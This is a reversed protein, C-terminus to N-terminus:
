WADPFRARLGANSHRGTRRHDPSRSASDIGHTRRRRGHCQLGERLSIRRPPLDDRHDADPPRQRRSRFRGRVARLQRGLVGPGRTRGPGAVGVPLRLRPHPVHAASRLHARRVRHHGWVHRRRPHIFPDPCRGIRRLHRRRLCRDLEGLEAGPVLADLEVAEGLTTCETVIDCTVTISALPISALPISALPSGIIDISALPISALPTGALETVNLDISALPISALPISALPISALPTDAITSGGTELAVALDLLSESGDIGIASCWETGTPDSGLFDCFAAGGLDISALPISALPTGQLDISALPISALPVNAIDISALPISALPSEALTRGPAASELAAIVETIGDSDEDLGLTACSVTPDASTLYECFTQDGIDISALPISALPISALPISALPTGLLDISALPTSGTTISALPISALPAGAIDISALPISALPISALPISALPISALPTSALDISALPISALPISALPAGQVELDLLTTTNPDCDFGGLDPTACLDQTTDVEAITASGLAISPLTISALPSGQITIDALDVSALTAADLDALTVAQLPTNAYNTGELLASWGGISALPISALPISALPSGEITISALPISALPISALPSASLDISALPISALPISALPSAEVVDGSGTIKEIPIDILPVEVVGPETSNTDVTQSVNTLTPPESAIEVAGIDCANGLPRLAGRQDVPECTSQSIEWSVISQDAWATGGGGTFGFFGTDGVEAAIDVTTSLEPSGPKVSDTALYVDLQGTGAQYDIWAFKITGDDFPTAIPKTVISIIAQGDSVGGVDVGIHNGDPDTGNFYTDFEVAVSPNGSATGIGLRGGPEGLFGQTPVVAFTIGDGSAELGLPEVPDLVFSFSTSFSKTLDFRTGEGRDAFFSGAEFVEDTLVGPANPSGSSQAAVDGNSFVADLEAVVSGPDAADIAPSGALLAHTATPGGNDQLPGLLPDLPSGVDGAIDTSTPTCGGLLRFFNYGLSINNSCDAQAGASNFALLSNALTMSGSSNYVAGGSGSDAHNDVITVQNLDVAASDQIAFGGGNGTTAENGSFTSNSVTTPGAALLGAGSLDGSDGATSNNSFTSGSIDATGFVSVGGGFRAGNGDITTSRLALDGLNHIAGGTGGPASNNTFASDLITMTGSNYVAGASSAVNSDFTAMSLDALPTETSIAGGTTAASNGTFTSDASVLATASEGSFIAGGYDAVNGVFVNATDTLELASTIAGGQSGATNTDFRSDSIALATAGANAAIAGGSGLTAANTAFLSTDVIVDGTGQGYVAGGTVASNDDFVACGITIADGSYHAIAGGANTGASNNSFRTQHIEVVGSGSWIAGGFDLAAGDAFTTLAGFTAPGTPTVCTPDPAEITLTGDNAIAAGSAASNGGFSSSTVVVTGGENSIAGGQYVASNTSFTTGDVQLVDGEGVYVAGGDGTATNSDFTVGNLIGLANNGAMLLGAGNTASGGAITLNELTFTGTGAQIVPVGSDNSGSITVAGDGRLTQDDGIVIGAEFFTGAPLVVEGGPGVADLQEQITPVEAGDAEFAGIDCAAGQPRVVGRQDLGSCADAGDIAPSGGLLAFTDSLGGNDALTGLVPDIPSGPTGFQDGTTATISCETQEIQGILNYGDSAFGGSCDVAGATSTNEAVLSRSVSFFGNGSYLGGGTDGDNGTITSFTVTVGGGDSGIGGGAEALNGTVTSNAVLVTTEFGTSAIGGGLSGSADNAAILSSQVDVFGETAWIGAGNGGALNSEIRSDTITMQSNLIRLGGGGGTSQNGAVDTNDLTTTAGNYTYIGGGEGGASNGLVSSDILTLTGGNNEIGGAHTNSANGEVNVDILTGTSPTFPSITLPFVSIGGGLSAGADGNRITLGSLEATAGDRINVARFEVNSADLVTSGSGAGTITVDYDLQLTTDLLYEGAAIVIVDGAVRSADNAAADPLTYDCGSPCVTVTAARATQPAGVVLTAMALLFVVARVLTRQVSDMMGHTARWNVSGM